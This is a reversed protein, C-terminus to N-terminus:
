VAVRGAVGAALAAALESVATLAAAPTPADLVAKVFASGVIVGDAYAAVEAAQEATSVGVGVCVAVGEGLVARTRAVLEAAVSGVGTAMASRVGTVGMTAAAYVFGTAIDGVVGIRVPTSSPAVLFVRDLGHADTAAVWSGAEEPTLDPTIVGVGGAAALGAAFRDAGYREIPNWYTMVLTPAGTKAVDAVTALVDDTTTGNTLATLVAQQIVAGDMLPDSYPLGIEVIDVGNEVMAKILAVAELRSPFGAPLYGILLARDHARAAAFAAALRNM